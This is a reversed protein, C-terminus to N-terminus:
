LGLPGRIMVLVGCKTRKNASDIPTPFRAPHLADEFDSM